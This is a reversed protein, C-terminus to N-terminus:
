ACIFDYTKVDVKLKPFVLLKGIMVPIVDSGMVLAVTMM